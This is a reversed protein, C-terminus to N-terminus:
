RYQATDHMHLESVVVGRERDIEADSLVARFALQDLMELVRYVNGTPGNVGTTGVNAGSGSASATSSESATTVAASGAAGAVAGAGTGADTSGANKAGAGSDVPCSLTYMTNRFTTFANADGGFSLGWQALVREVQVAARLM